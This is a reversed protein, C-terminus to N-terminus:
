REELFERLAEEEVVDLTITLRLTGAGLIAKAVMARSTRAWARQSRLCENLFGAIRDRAIQEMAERAIPRGRSGIDIELSGASVLVSVTYFDGPERGPELFDHRCARFTERFSQRADRDESPTSRGADGLVPQAAADQVTHATKPQSSCAL